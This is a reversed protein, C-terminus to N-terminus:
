RGTGIRGRAREREGKREKKRERKGDGVRGEMRRSEMEKQKYCALVLTRGETIEEREEKEEEKEKEM